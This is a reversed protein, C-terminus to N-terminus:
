TGMTGLCFSTTRLIQFHWDPTIGGLDASVDLHRHKTDAPAPAVTALLGQAGAGQGPEVKVEPEDPTSDQVRGQYPGDGALGGLPGQGTLGRIRAGPM